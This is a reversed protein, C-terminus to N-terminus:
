TGPTTKEFHALLRDMVDKKSKESLNSNILTNKVMNIYFDTYLNRIDSNSKKGTFHIVVKFPASKPAM